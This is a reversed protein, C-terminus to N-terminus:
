KALTRLIDAFSELLAGLAYLRMQPNNAANVRVGRGYKFDIVELVDDSVIICDGTGFGEPAWQSFDLSRVEFEVFADPCDAQTADLNAAVFKAYNISHELMESSYYEGQALQELESEYGVEDQVGVWYRAVLECLEHAATGEEAYSSTSNPMTEELRASPPCELWRSAGSASLLAHKLEM